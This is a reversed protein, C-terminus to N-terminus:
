KGNRNWCITCNYNYEHRCHLAHHIVPYTSLPFNKLHNSSILNHSDLKYFENCDRSRGASATLLSYCMYSILCVTEIGCMAFLNSNIYEWFLFQRQTQSRDICINVHEAWRNEQLLIPLGLGVLPICTHIYIARLFMFTPIPVTAAWNREQSYKNWIKPITDKCRLEIDMNIHHATWVPLIRKWTKKSNLLFNNIKASLIIRKIGSYVSALYYEWTLKDGESNLNSFRRKELYKRVLCSRGLIYTDRM